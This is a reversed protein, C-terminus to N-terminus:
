LPINERKQWNAAEKRREQICTCPAGEDTMGTDKCKDCTYKVETFDMEYNNETLLIARDQVLYDMDQKLKNVDVSSDKTIMAMSIKVGINKIERDIEEVQPIAEYVERKRAEADNESKQRLYDYYANLVKRSVSSGENVDRNEKVSSSHWNELIKNVYNFNPNPIGSTKSCAELVMDMKFGYEDFWRDMMSSEIESASRNFGLAKMVRKERQKKEDVEEIFGEADDISKVGSKMWNNLIAYIYNFNTNGKSIGYKFGFEILSVPMGFDEHLELISKVERSDLPREILREISNFLLKVEDNGLPNSTKNEYIEESKGTSAVPEGSGYLMAKLELFEIVYDGESASVKHKKIALMSEWYNWAEEVTKVPINLQNAMEENNMSQKNAAYMYAYLFVKVYDGPALPMYENIFINEINTDHLYLDNTKQIVYNM